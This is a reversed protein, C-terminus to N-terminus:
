RLSSRGTARLLRYGPALGTGEVPELLGGRELAEMAKHYSAAEAFDRDPSLAVYAAGSKLFEATLDAVNIPTSGPSHSLEVTTLFPRM